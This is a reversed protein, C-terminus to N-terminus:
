NLAQNINIRVSFQFFNTKNYMVNKEFGYSLTLGVLSEEKYFSSKKSRAILM